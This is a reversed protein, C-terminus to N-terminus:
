RAGDKGPVARSRFRLLGTSPDYDDRAALKPDVPGPGGLNASAHLTSAAGGGQFGGSPGSPRLDEFEWHPVGNDDLWGNEMRSGIDFGTAMKTYPSAFPDKVMRTIKRSAAAAAPSSQQTGMTPRYTPTEPASAGIPPVAGRRPTQAPGMAGRARLLALLGSSLDPAATPGPMTQVLNRDKDYATNISINDAM